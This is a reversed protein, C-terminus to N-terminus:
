LPDATVEYEMDAKITVDGSFAERTVAEFRLSYSDKKIYADLKEETTELEISTNEEPIDEKYALRTEEVGDASIFIDLSKLFSFTFDEPSQITLTLEKLKISKVLDARTNNNEFEQSSNSTIEPTPVNVPTPAGAVGEITFTTNDSITFTLLDELQECSFLSVALITAIGIFKHKWNM